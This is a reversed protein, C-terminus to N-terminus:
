SHSEQNRNSTLRYDSHVSEDNQQYDEWGAKSQRPMNWLYPFTREPVRHSFVSCRQRKGNSVHTRARCSMESLSTIIIGAPDTGLYVDSKLVFVRVPGWVVLILCTSLVFHLSKRQVSGSSSEIFKKCYVLSYALRVNLM